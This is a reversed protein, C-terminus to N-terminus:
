PHAAAALEVAVTRGAAVEAETVTVAAARGPTTIRYPGVARVATAAGATAYPVTFTFAGGVDAEARDYYSLRRGRDTVLDLRLEVPEGPRARGGIRAGPVLEFVKAFSGEWGPEAGVAASEFDLRLRRLPALTRGAVTTELGDFVLLRSNMTTYFAPTPQRAGSPGVTTFRPAGPRLMRAVDEIEYFVPTVLVYRAGLRELERVAPTPDTALFFEAAERVGRLHVAAQSFPNAINAQHAVTILWNGWEWRSMVAFRPRVEPRNVDGPSAAHDRLWVLADHSRVLDDQPLRRTLHHLRLTPAMLALGVLVAGLRVAPGRGRGVRTEVARTAVVWATGWLACWVPAFQSGLRLQGLAMGATVAFWVLAVRAVLRGRPAGRWCRLAVAALLLPFAFAVVGYQQVAAGFGFSLLPYSEFVQGIQADGRDIYALTSVAAHRLGPSLAVGVAAVVLPPLLLAAAAAGAGAARRRLAVAALTFGLWATAYVLPQLWTPAYYAFSGAAAWPHALVIPVVVLAAVAFARRGFVALERRDCGEPTWVVALALSAAALVGAAIAGPWVGIAGGLVVGLWLAARGRVREDGARLGRVLLALPLAALAPEIAHHDIRGVMSYGTLIPLVAAIAAGALGAARGGLERGLLYIALVSLVGLLPDFLVGVALPTVRGGSVFGVVRVLTALALDFGVPWMMRAGTPYNTYWDFTHVKPYREAALWARHWHYSSDEDWILIRGGVFVGPVNALRTAAALLLVLGLLM